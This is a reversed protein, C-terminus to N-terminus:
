GWGLAFVVYETDLGPRQILGAHEAVRMSAVNGPRVLAVVPLRPLYKRSLTVATLATETAYGHGWASSTFRYYLNLVDREYRELQRVGGFGIIENTAPLTVAWYGYGDDQWQQLWNHLVNESAAFDPDPGNPAYKHTAPDGHIAFMATADEARPRRLILRETHIEGFISALQASSLNNHEDPMAM